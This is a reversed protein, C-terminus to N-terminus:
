SESPTMGQDIAFKVLGAVGKVRLKKQLRYRYTHVTNPSLSLATAIDKTAVGEVVLQLVERERLSLLELAPREFDKQEFQSALVESVEPSLYRRGAQVARVAAVVDGGVSAKLLYGMVGSQLARTIHTSSGHVSLIIVRSRPCSERLEEAADLGNLEPMTIDMIVVDPQCEKVIRVAERGNQAQGVVEIDGANELLACIGDRVVGHDDAVVVSTTM